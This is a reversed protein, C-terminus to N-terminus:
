LYSIIPFFQFDDMMITVRMVGLLLWFGRSTVSRRCRTLGEPTLVKTYGAVEGKNAVQGRQMTLGWFTDAWGELGLM